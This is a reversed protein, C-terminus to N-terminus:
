KGSREKRLTILNLKGAEDFFGEGFKNAFRGSTTFKMEYPKEGIEPLYHIKFPNNKELEKDDAYNAEAVLVQTKRILYESHTEVIFHINYKEYAELFMDALLSQYKPHLHMEPEELIILNEDYHIVEKGNSEWIKSHHLINDLILTEIRLLLAILQTVGVGQDALLTKENNKKNLTAVKLGLGDEVQTILLEDAVDLKKLWENIFDGPKFGSEIPIYGAEQPHHYDDSLLYLFRRKTDIYASLTTFFEGETYLRKVSASNPSFYSIENPLMMTMIDEFTWEVFRSFLGLCEYLWSLSFDQHKSDPNLIEIIYLLWCLHHKEWEIDDSDQIIRSIEKNNLPRSDYNDFSDQPLAIYHHGSGKSLFEREKQKFYDGFNTHDSNEFDDMIINFHDTYDDLVSSVGSHHLMKAKDMLFSRVKAKDMNWIENFIPIFFLTKYQFANEFVSFNHNLVEHAESLYPNADESGHGNNSDYLINENSYCFAKVNNLYDRSYENVIQKYTICKEKYIDKCMAHGICYSDWGWLEAFEEYFNPDGHYCFHENQIGWWIITNFFKFFSDKLLYYNGFSQFKHAKGPEYVKCCYIIEGNQRKFEILCLYGNDQVDNKDPGFALTVVIDEGLLRSYTTIEFTILENQSGRHLAQHFSGLKLTGATSAFDLKYASLNPKYGKRIDERIHDIYTKLLMIAKNISSKGSSNSGTLITIPNLEFTAGNEDFVRFNKINITTKKM